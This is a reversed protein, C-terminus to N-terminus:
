LNDRTVRPYELAVRVRVWAFGYGCWLTRTKVPQPLPKLFGPPVCVQACTHSWFQGLLRALATRTDVSVATRGQLSLPESLTVFIWRRRATAHSPPPPCAFLMSIHCLDVEPEALSTSTTYPESNAYSLPPPCALPMSIRCGGQKQTLPLHHHHVAREQICPCTFPMSICCLNVEPKSKPALSTSSVRITDIHDGAQKAHLPLSAAAHGLMNEIKTTLLSTPLSLRVV